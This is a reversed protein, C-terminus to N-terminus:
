YVEMVCGNECTFYKKMVNCKNGFSLYDDVCEYTYLWGYSACLDDCDQNLSSTLFVVDDPNGIRM